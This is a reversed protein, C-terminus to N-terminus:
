DCNLFGSARCRAAFAQAALRQQPNARGLAVGRGEPSIADGALLAWAMAKVPDPRRNVYIEVLNARQGARDEIAGRAFWRIAGDLDAATGIGDRLMVALLEIAGEDGAQAAIRAHPLAAVADRRVWRYIQALSASAQWHGALAAKELLALGRTEDRAQAEGWFLANGLAAMEGPSAATMGAQAAAPPVFHLVGAKPMTNGPLLAAQLFLALLM